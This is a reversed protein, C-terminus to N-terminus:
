QLSLTLDAEQPVDQVVTVSISATRYGKKVAQVQYGGPEIGDLQYEGSKDTTAAGEGALTVKVGAVPKGAADTIKGSLSGFTSAQVAALSIGLSGAAFLFIPLFLKTKM